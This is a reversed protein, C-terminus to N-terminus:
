VDNLKGGDQKGVVHKRQNMLCWKAKGGDEKGVVYKKENMLRWKATESMKDELWTIGRQVSALQTATKLCLSENNHSCLLLESHCVVAGIATCRLTTKRPLRVDSTPNYKGLIGLLGFGAVVLM